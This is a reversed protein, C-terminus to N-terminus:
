IPGRSLSRLLDFGAFRIAPKGTAPNSAVPSNIAWASAGTGAAPISGLADAAHGSTSTSKAQPRSSVRPTPSTPCAKM